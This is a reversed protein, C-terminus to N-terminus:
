SSYLAQKPIKMASISNADVLYFISSNESTGPFGCRKDPLYAKAKEPSKVNQFISPNGADVALKPATLNMQFSKRKKAANPANAPLRKSIKLTRM